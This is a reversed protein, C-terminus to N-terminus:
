KEGDKVEKTVEPMVLKSTINFRKEDRGKNERSYSVLVPNLYWPSDKLNTMLSSIEADNEAIGEIEVDGNVLSFGTLFVTDFIAGSLDELMHTASARNEQLYKISNIQNRVKTRVAELKKKELKQPAIEKIETNLYSITEDKSGIELKKYGYFLGSLILGILAGGVLTSKTNKAKKQRLEERWPLLNFQISM